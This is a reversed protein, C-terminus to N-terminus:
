RTMASMLDSLDIRPPYAEPATNQYASIQNIKGALAKSGQYELGALAAVAVSAILIYGSITLRAISNSKM